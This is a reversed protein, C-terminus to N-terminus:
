ERVPLIQIKTSKYHLKEIFVDFVLFYEQLNTVIGYMSSVLVKKVCIM